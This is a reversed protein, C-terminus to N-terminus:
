NLLEGFSSRLYGWDIGTQVDQPQRCEFDKLDFQPLWPTAQNEAAAQAPWLCGSLTLVFGTVVALRRM